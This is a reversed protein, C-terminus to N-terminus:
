CFIWLQGQWRFFLGTSDRKFVNVFIRNTLGEKKAENIVPITELFKESAKEDFVTDGGPWQHV